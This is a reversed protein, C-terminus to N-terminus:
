DLKVIKGFHYFYKKWAKIKELKCVFDFYNKKIKIGLLEKVHTAPMNAKHQVIKLTKRRLM